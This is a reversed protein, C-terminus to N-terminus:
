DTKTNTKIIEVKDKFFSNLFIEWWNPITFVTIGMFSGNSRLLLWNSAHILATAVQSHNPTTDTLLAQVM